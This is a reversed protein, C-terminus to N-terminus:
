GGPPRYTPSLKTAADVEEPTLLVVTRARVAGAASAALAGAAAAANNPLDAIVYFDDGGFGFYFAELSGGVSALLKEVASRRGTGGEALLGKVGEATYSGTIMYKPM